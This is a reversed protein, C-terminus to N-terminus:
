PLLPQCFVNAVQFKRQLTAALEDPELGYAEFGSVRTIHKRGGQRDEMSVSIPKLEGRQVTQKVGQMATCRARHRSCASKSALLM